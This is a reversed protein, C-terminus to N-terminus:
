GLFRRLNEITRPHSLEAKGFGPEAGARVALQQYEAYNTILMCPTGAFQPDAKIKRVIDLGESGDHDLQRNVLILDIRGAQLAALSDEWGSARTIEADFANEILTRISRHDATCNGIDLVRRTTM